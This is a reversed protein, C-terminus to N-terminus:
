PDNIRAFPRCLTNTRLNELHMSTSCAHDFCIWKFFQVYIIKYSSSKVMTSETTWLLDELVWKAVGFWWGSYCFCV